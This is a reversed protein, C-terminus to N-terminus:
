IIETHSTCTNAHNYKATASLSLHEARSKLSGSNLFFLFFSAAQQLLVWSALVATTFSTWSLLLCGCLGAGICSCSFVNPASSIQAASTQGFTIYVSHRDKLMLGLWFVQLLYILAAVWPLSTLLSREGNDLVPLRPQPEPASKQQLLPSVHCQYGLPPNSIVAAGEVRNITAANLLCRRSLILPWMEVARWVANYHICM